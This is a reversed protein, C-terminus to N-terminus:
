VMVEERMNEYEQIVNILLDLEEYEKTGVKPELESLEELKLLLLNYDTTNKIEVHQYKLEVDAKRKKWPLGHDYLFVNQTKGDCLGCMLCKIEEDKVNPCLVAKEPANSGTPLNTFTTWGLSEATKKADLTNCSAQCLGKLHYTVPERWSSTYGTHSVVHPLLKSWVIFPVAAPDGYSGMRLKRGRLHRYDNEQLHTYGGISYKRWMRNISKGLNVYCISSGTQKAIIPRQVCNGCTSFDYGKKVADTPLMDQRLILTQLMNGTKNNDSFRVGSILVVLPVGDFQSAGEWLIYTNQVRM